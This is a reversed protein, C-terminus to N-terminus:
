RREEGGDSVEQMTDYRITTDGWGGDSNQNKVLWATANQLVEEYRTADVHHLAILATATSLASSSLEGRWHGSSDREALLAARANELFTM